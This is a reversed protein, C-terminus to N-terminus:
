LDRHTARAALNVRPHALALQVVDVHGRGAAIVLLSDIDYRAASRHALLRELVACLGRPAAWAICECVTAAPDPARPLLLELLRLNGAAAAANCVIAMPHELQRHALLRESIQFYGGEVAFFLSGSNYANLQSFASERLLREVAALNGLKAAAQTALAVSAASSAIAVRPDALLRELM